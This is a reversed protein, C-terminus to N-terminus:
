KKGGHVGHVGGHGDGHGGHGVGYGGRNEENVNESAFSAEEASRCCRICHRGRWQCCGYRCRRRLEEAQDANESPFSAEEASRCCRICHRGRWKCCGHPCRRRLEEAQDSEHKDQSTEVELAFSSLFFVAFSLFLLLVFTKSSKM